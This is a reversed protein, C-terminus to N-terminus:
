YAPMPMQGWYNRPSTQEVMMVQRSEPDLDARLLPLHKVTFALSNEYSAYEGDPWTLQSFILRVPGNAMGGMMDQHHHSSFLPFLFSLVGRWSRSRGPRMSSMAPQVFLGEMMYHQPMVHVLFGKHGQERFDGLTAVMASDEYALNIIERLSQESRPLISVASIQKDPLYVMSTQSITYSRLGLAVVVSLGLVVGYSVALALGPSKMWGFLLRFLKGGPEGPIFMATREMYARYSDGYKALMRQEEHRALLYYVFLMSIYLILIFFRPWFLLLGLGAAALFLYQPHRIWRYLLGSVVGKRRLKASYVQVAAILFAIIGLSFLTRGFGNVFNLAASNSVVAHPMFFGTLWATAPYAYLLNLLPGYVTYFYAAFPSIMIIIELGILLYFVLVSGRVIRKNLNM